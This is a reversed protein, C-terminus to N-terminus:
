LTQPLVIRPRCKVNWGDDHSFRHLYVYPDGDSFVRVHAVFEEKGVRFPIFTAYGETRLWERHDQAIRIVQAQTFFQTPGFIKAFNGCRVVERVSIKTEGTAESPADIKEFPADIHGPFIVQSKFITAAGDTPALTLSEAGTIVRTYGTECNMLLALTGVPDEVIQQQLYGPLQGIAQPHRTISALAELTQNEILNM